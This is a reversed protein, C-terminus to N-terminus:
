RGVEKEARNLDLDVRWGGNEIAVLRARKRLAPTNNKTREVDLFRMLARRALRDIRALNATMLMTQINQETMTM